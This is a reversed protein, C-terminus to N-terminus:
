VLYLCCAYMCVHWVYMCVHMCAYMCVYMCVYMCLGKNIKIPQQNKNTINRPGKKIAGGPQEVWLGWKSGKEKEKEKKREEVGCPGPYRM